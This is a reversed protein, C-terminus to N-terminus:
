PTSMETTPSASVIGGIRVAIQRMAPLIERVLEDNLRAARAQVGLAGWVQRDAGFVPVAVSRIPDDEGKFEELAFGKRRVLDLDTELYPAAPLHALLARGAASSRLPQRPPPLQHHCFHVPPRAQLVTLAEREAVVSLSTTIKIGAALAYLHPAASDMGLRSLAPRALTALGQGIRYRDTTPDQELLRGRVLAQALRHGTSVPVGALHALESISFEPDDGEFCNLLHVAREVAQSGSRPQDASAM